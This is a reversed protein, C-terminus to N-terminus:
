FLEPLQESPDESIVESRLFSHLDQAMPPYRDFREKVSLKEVRHFEGLKVSKGCGRCVRERSPPDLAHSFVPDSVSAFEARVHKQACHPCALMVYHAIRSM